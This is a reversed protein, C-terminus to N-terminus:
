SWFHFHLYIRGVYLGCKQCRRLNVMYRNALSRKCRKLPSSRVILLRRLIKGSITEMQTVFPTLNSHLHIFCTRTFFPFVQQFLKCFLTNAPVLLSPFIYLGCYIKKLDGSILFYIVVWGNLCRRDVSSVSRWAHRSANGESIDDSLSSKRANTKTSHRM